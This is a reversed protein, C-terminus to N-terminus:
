ALFPLGTNCFIDKSILGPCVTAITPVVPDPFVVKVLNGLYYFSHHEKLLLIKNFRSTILEGLQPKDRLIFIIYECYVSLYKYLEQEITINNCM